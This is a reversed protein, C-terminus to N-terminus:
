LYMYAYIEIYGHDYICVLKCHIYICTYMFCTIMLIVITTLNYCCYMIVFLHHFDCNWRFNVVCSPAVQGDVIHVPLVRDSSDLIPYVPFTVLYQRSSLFSFTSLSPRPPLSDSVLDHYIHSHLYSKLFREILCAYITALFINLVLWM